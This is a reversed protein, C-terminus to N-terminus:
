IGRRRRRSIYGIVLALLLSAMAGIATLDTRGSGSSPAASGAVVADTSPPEIPLVRFDAARWVEPGVFPENCQWYTAYTGPPIAPLVWRQVIPVPPNFVLAGSSGDLPNFFSPDDREIISPDTSLLLTADTPYCPVDSPETIGAHVIVVQGPRAAPPDFTFPVRLQEVRGLVLRPVAADEASPVALMLAYTRGADVDFLIRASPSCGVVQFSGDTVDVVAFAFADIGFPPVTLKLREATAAQYTYWLTKTYTVSPALCGIPDTAEVTAGDTDVTTEYPLSGIVTATALNDNTPGDAAVAPVVLLGVALAFAVALGLRFPRGPLSVDRRGVTTM